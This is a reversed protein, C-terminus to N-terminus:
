PISANSTAATSETVAAGQFVGGELALKGDGIRFEGAFDIAGEGGELPHGGENSRPEVLLWGLEARSIGFAVKFDPTGTEIAVGVEFANLNGLGGKETRIRRIVLAVGDAEAAFGAEEASV